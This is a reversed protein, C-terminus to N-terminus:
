DWTGTRIVHLADANSYLRLVGLRRLGPSRRNSAKRSNVVIKQRDLLFVYWVTKLSFGAFAKDSTVLSVNEIITQADLM